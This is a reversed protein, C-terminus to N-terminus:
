RAKHMDLIVDGLSTDLTRAALPLGAAPAVSGLGPVAGGTVSGVPDGMPPLGASELMSGTADHGHVNPTHSSAGNTGHNTGTAPRPPPPTYKNHPARNPLAAADASAPLLSVVALASVAALATFPHNLVVM